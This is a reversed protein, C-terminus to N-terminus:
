DLPWITGAGRVTRTLGAMPEQGWHPGSNLPFKFPMLLSIHLPFSKLKKCINVPGVGECIRSLSLFLDTLLYRQERSVWKSEAPSEQGLLGTPWHNEGLQVLMWLAKFLSMNRSRVGFRNLLSVLDKLCALGM